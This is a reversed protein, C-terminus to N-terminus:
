SFNIEKLCETYSIDASFLLNEHASIGPVFQHYDGYSSSLVEDYAAPAPLWLSEFPLEILDKFWQREYSQRWGCVAPVLINVMRSSGYREAAIAEFQRMREEQPLEILALLEKTSLYSTAGQRIGELVGQPNYVTAWVEGQIALIEEEEPSGDSTDDLADIDIFIGQNIDKVEPYQIAATRSDRLKSMGLVFQKDTYIDQFFYYPPLEDAIVEKLRNYDPRPLMLDIDDDWPIFGKHRVAGLLTGYSMFYILGYKKCIRDFEVLLNLEVNWVKKRDLTVLFGDRIEDHYVDRVYEKM